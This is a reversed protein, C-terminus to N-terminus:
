PAIWFTRRLDLSRQRSSGIEELALRLSKLGYFLRSRVTGEPIGAEAAVEACSRGRYYTDV